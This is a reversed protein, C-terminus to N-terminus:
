RAALLRLRISGDQQVEESEVAHGMRRAEIKMKEAAYAQSLKPASDGGLVRTLGGQSYYDWELRISGDAAVKVGVDYTAGPFSMAHDCRGLKATMYEKQDRPTMARVKAFEEATDFMEASFATDGVWSGFWRYSRQGELFKGGLRTCAARLADLDTVKVAVTAVHSM